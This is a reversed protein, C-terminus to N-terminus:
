PPLLILALATCSACNPSAAPPLQCGTVAAKYVLLSLKFVFTCTRCAGAQRPLGLLGPIHGLQMEWTPGEGGGGGGEGGGGLQQEEAASQALMGQQQSCGCTCPSHSHSSPVWGHEGALGLAKLLGRCPLVHEAALTLARLASCNLVHGSAAQRTPGPM